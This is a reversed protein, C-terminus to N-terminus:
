SYIVWYISKWDQCFMDISVLMLFNARPELSYCYLLIDLNVSNNVLYLKWKLYVLAPAGILEPVQVRRFAREPIWRSVTGVLSLNLIQCWDSKFHSFYPLKLFIWSPKWFGLHGGFNSNKETTDCRQGRGPKLKFNPM